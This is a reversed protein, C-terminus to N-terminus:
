DRPLVPAEPPRHLDKGEAFGVATATASSPGPPRSLRAGTAFAKKKKDLALVSWVSRSRRAFLVKLEGRCAGAAMGAAGLAALALPLAMEKARRM